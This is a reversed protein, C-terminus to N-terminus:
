ADTTDKTPDSGKPIARVEIAGNGLGRMALEHDRLLADIAKADGMGTVVIRDPDLAFDFHGLVIQLMLAALVQTFRDADALGRPVRGISDVYAIKEDSM